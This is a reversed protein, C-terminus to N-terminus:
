RWGVWVHTHVTEMGSGSATWVWQQMGAGDAAVGM